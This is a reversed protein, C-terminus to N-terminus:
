QESDVLQYGAYRKYLLKVAKTPYSELTLRADVMAVLDVAKDDAILEYLPTSDGNGGEILKDLRELKVAKPCDPYM